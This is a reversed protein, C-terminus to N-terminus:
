WSWSPMGTANVRIIEEDHIAAGDRAALAVGNVEVRGKALVLYGCRGADSFRYEASEGAKLTAGLVQADARIPLAGEADEIGSALVM